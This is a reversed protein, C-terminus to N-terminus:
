REVQRIRRFETREGHNQLGIFGQERRESLGPVDAARADVVTEGNHRIRYHDGRVQIELINWEGAARSVRPDAGVFDYVSASYQYDKLDLDAHGADDLIQVEVGAGDGHHRGDEPVRVYVGSNGRPPLRYELVLSVDSMPEDWRLWKGGGGECRLVGGEVSWTPEAPADGIATWGTLDQGNFLPKADLETLRIDRFEFQGGLPVESQIGVHGPTADLGTVHWAQEGNIWLTAEEGVARLKMRNWVGPRVLGEPVTGQDVGLLRGEGGQLLNIQYRAPWPSGEPDPSRFYIGSDFEAEKLPRWEFELEFDGLEWAVRAFGNGDELKLVGERVSVECGAVHWASLGDALLDISEPSAEVRSSTTATNRVLVDQAVLPRDAPCTGSLVCALSLAASCGLFSVTRRM